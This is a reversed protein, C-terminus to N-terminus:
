KQNSKDILFEEEISKLRKDILKENKKTEIIKNKMFDRKQIIKDIEIRIEREKDSLIALGARLSDIEKKYPEIKRHINEKSKEILIYEKLVHRKKIIIVKLKEFFDNMLRDRESGRIYIWKKSAIDNIMFDKFEDISFVLKTKRLFDNLDISITSYDLSKIVALAREDIEHSYFPEISYKGSSSEIVIDNRIGGLSNRSSVERDFNEFYFDIAPRVVINFKSFNMFKKPINLEDFLNNLKKSFLKDNEWYDFLLYIFDIPPLKIRNIEEFVKKSLWHIYSEYGVGCDVNKHRFHPRQINGEKHVPIMRKCCNFCVLNRKSGSKVEKIFVLEDIDKDLVIPIKIYFINKM